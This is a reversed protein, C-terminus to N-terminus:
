SEWAPLFITRSRKNHVHSREVWFALEVAEACAVAYTSLAVFYLGQIVDKYSQWKLPSKDNIYLPAACAVLGMTPALLWILVPIPPM